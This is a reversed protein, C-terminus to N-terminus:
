KKKKLVKKSIKLLKDIKNILSKVLIQNSLIDKEIIIFIREINVIVISFILFLSLKLYICYGFLFIIQNNIIDFLVKYKKMWPYGLIILHYDLKTM